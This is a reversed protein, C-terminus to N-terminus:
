YSKIEFVAVVGQDKCGAIRHRQDICFNIETLKCGAIIQYVFTLFTDRAYVKIKVSRGKSEEVILFSTIEFFQASASM